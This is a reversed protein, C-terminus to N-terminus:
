LGVESRWIRDLEICEKKSEQKDGEIYKEYRSFEGDNQCDIFQKGAIFKKAKQFCFQIVKTKAFDTRILYHIHHHIVPKGLNDKRHKECVYSHIDIGPTTKFKSVFTKMNQVVNSQKDDFGVTVFFYKKKENGRLEKQIELVFSDQRRYFQIDLNYHSMVISQLEDDTFQPRAIKRFDSSCVIDYFGSISDANSVQYGYEPKYKLKALALRKETALQFLPYM